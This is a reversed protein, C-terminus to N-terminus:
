INDFKMNKPFTCGVNRLVVSAAETGIKCCEYIPSGKLYESLFGGLFSDGAGNLDVIDDNNIKNAFYQFIYDIQNRKYDFQACYVGSSGATFVLLRDRPALKLFINEFIEKVNNGDAKIGSLIEAENINGAIMDAKNAIEIIKESHNQVIFMASLTLIVLKKERSFCDTLKKCIDLKNPLMYGEIIISDNSLIQELNQQIFEESLKKSARLQTILFREKKYIGVGCRSTKENPLTEFLANVNLENLANLVKQRYLDDGACGMMTIKFKNKNNPDMNLCWALVRISNEVAGGPIYRVEPMRELEGYVGNDNNEDLFVTDGWKLNYKKIIDTGIESTIDVIPDGIAILSLIEQRVKKSQQNQSYNQPQYQGFTTQDEPNPSNGKTNYSSFFSNM